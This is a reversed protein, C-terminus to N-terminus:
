EYCGNSSTVNVVARGTSNVGDEFDKVVVTGESPSGKYAFVYRAKFQPQPNPYM